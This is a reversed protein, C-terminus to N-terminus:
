ELIDDEDEDDEDEAALRVPRPERSRPRAIRALRRKREASQCAARCVRFVVCFCCCAFGGVLTVFLLFQDKGHLGLTSEGLTALEEGIIGRVMTATVHAEGQESASEGGSAGSRIMAAIAAAQENSRGNRDACTWGRFRPLTPNCESMCSAFTRNKEFCRQTASVCCGSASCDRWPQACPSLVKCPLGTVPDFCSRQCTYSEVGANVYTRYCSADLPGCCRRMECAEGM